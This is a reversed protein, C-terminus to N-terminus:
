NDLTNTHPQEYYQGIIGKIEMFNAAIDGNENM